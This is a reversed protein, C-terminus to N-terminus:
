ISTPNKTSASALQSVKALNVMGVDNL